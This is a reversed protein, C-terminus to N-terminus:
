RSPFFGSFEGAAGYRVKTTSELHPTQVLPFFLMILDMEWM